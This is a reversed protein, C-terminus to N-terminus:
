NLMVTLIVTIIGTLFTAATYATVIRNEHSGKREFHHHLPAMLFVRKSTIKFYAVQIIVSLSTLVYMIGILPILLEQRSMIALCALGGGLSLAGTDGMFVKAPFGNFCLFGILAGILSGCYILLNGYEAAFAQGDGYFYITLAIIIGFFLTYTMTVKGALGDLGDTLNVANTFAIFIIVFFPIAFYKLDIETLFFPTFITSSVLENNYAFVAVIVAILLQFIIKQLASLGKNQKFFVKIFDDIFGILGYGVTVFLTILMLQHESTMFCLCSVTLAILFGLGGMTPTGSKSMHNDVYSLITQRVKLRKSLRIILPMLILTLLFACLTSLSVRAIM